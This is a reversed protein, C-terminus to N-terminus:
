KRLFVVEHARVYGIFNANSSFVTSGSRCIVLKGYYGKPIIKIETDFTMWPCQSTIPRSSIIQGTSSNYYGVRNTCAADTYLAAFRTKMGNTSATAGSVLRSDGDVFPIKIYADRETADITSSTKDAGSGSWTVSVPIDPEPEATGMM